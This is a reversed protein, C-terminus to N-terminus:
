PSGAQWDKEFSSSLQELVSRERVRVALERRLDFCSRDLNFSGLIALQGDAMMLKAHQRPKSVERVQAGAQRLSELAATNELIDYDSIGRIGSSLFRLRVGRRCAALLLQRTQEDVLKPTQIDLQFQAREVLSQLAIRSNGGKPQSWILQAPRFPRRQWDCEFAEAVEAVEEVRLTHLAYGRSKKFYKDALNFTCILASQDVVMSKEHTVYFDPSTWQLHIGAHSLFHWAEDNARTGDSRSPNLMVRVDLGRKRARVLAEWVAPSTLKFTKIWIRQRATDLIDLISQLGAEPMVLLRSASQPVLQLRPLPALPRNRNWDICPALSQM